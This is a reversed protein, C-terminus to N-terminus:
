ANVTRIVADPEFSTIAYCRAMRPDRPRWDITEPRADPHTLARVPVDLLNALAVTQDWRPYLWGIEWLDVDPEAAKCAADVAPGFLKASDLLRSIYLPVLKGNRWLEEEAEDPESFTDAKLTPIKQIIENIRDVEPDAAAQAAAGATTIKRRRFLNRM